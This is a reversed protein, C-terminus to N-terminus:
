IHKLVYLIMMCWRSIAFLLFTKKLGNTFIKLFLHYWVDHYQWVTINLLLYSVSCSGPISFLMQFIKIYLLYIPLWHPLILTSFVQMLVHTFRARFFIPKVYWWIQSVTPTFNSSGKICYWLITCKIKGKIETHYCQEYDYYYKISGIEICQGSYM